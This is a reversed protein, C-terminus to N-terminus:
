KEALAGPEPTGFGSGALGSVPRCFLWPKFAQRERRVAFIENGDQLARRPLVAAVLRLGAVVGANEVVVDAVRILGLQHAV